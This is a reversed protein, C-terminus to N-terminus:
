ATHPSEPMYFPHEMCHKLQKEFNLPTVSALATFWTSVQLEMPGDRNHCPFWLVGSHM